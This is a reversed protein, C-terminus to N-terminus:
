QPGIIPLHSDISPSAREYGENMATAFQQSPRKLGIRPTYWVVVLNSVSVPFDIRWPPICDCTASREPNGRRRVFVGDLYMNARLKRLQGRVLRIVEDVGISRDFEVHAELGNELEMVGSGLSTKHRVSQRNAARRRTHGHVARFGNPDFSPRWVLVNHIMLRYLQVMRIYERLEVPIARVHAPYM